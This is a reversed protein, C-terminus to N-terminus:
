EAHFPLGADWAEMEAARLARLYTRNGVLVPRRPLRVPRHALPAHELRDVLM